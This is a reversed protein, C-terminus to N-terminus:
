TWRSYVALPAACRGLLGVEVVFDGGLASMACHLRCDTRALNRITERYRSHLGIKRLASTPQSMAVPPAAV